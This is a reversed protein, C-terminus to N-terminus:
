RSGNGAGDAQEGHRVWREIASRARALRSMVTGIPVELVEAAERYAMGDLVVLAFVERQEVPLATYAQGAVSLESRVELEHEGDSGAVQAAAELPEHVGGRANAARITDINLNRALRFLWHGLQTGAQFRDEKLLAREIVSQLLDEGSERNGALALCFRHLRPLHEELQERFSPAVSRARPSM